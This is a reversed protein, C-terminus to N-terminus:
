PKMIKLPYPGEGPKLGYNSNFIVVSLGTSIWFMKDLSLWPKVQFIKTQRSGGQDRAIFLGYELRGGTGRSKSM